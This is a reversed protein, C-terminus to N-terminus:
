VGWPVLRGLYVVGIWLSLSTAAIAKALPPAEDGPGLADVARSVGSVYFALANFGALFMFLLKLQLWHDVMLVDYPHSGILNAGIGGVFVAGSMLCLIFGFVAWPLLRQLPKLPLGKAVGLVRLDFMGVIGVLLSLGIFHFTECMPWGWKYEQLLYELSPWRLIYRLFPEMGLFGVLSELM